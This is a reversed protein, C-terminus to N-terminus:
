TNHHSFCSLKLQKQIWPWQSGVVIKHMFFVFLTSWLLASCRAIPFSPISHFSFWCAIRQFKHDSSELVLCSVSSLFNHVRSIVIRMYILFNNTLRDIYYSRNPFFSCICSPFMIWRSVQISTRRFCLVIAVDSIKWYSHSTTHLSAILSRWAMM